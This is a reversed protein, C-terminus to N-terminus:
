HNHNLLSRLTLPSHSGVLGATEVKLQFTQAATAEKSENGEPLPALETINRFRLLLADVLTQERELLINAM